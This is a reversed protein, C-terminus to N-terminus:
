SPLKSYVGAAVSKLASVTQRRRQYEPMDHWRAVTDRSVGIRKALARDSLVEGLADAEGELRSAELFKDLKDVVPLGFRKLVAPSPLPNGSKPNILGLVHELAFAVMSSPAKQHKAHYRVLIAALTAIESLQGEASRRRGRAHHQEAWELWRAIIEQALDEVAGDRDLWLDIEGPLGQRGYGFLGEESRDEVVRM